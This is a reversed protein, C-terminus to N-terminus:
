DDRGTEEEEAEEAEAENAVRTEEERKARAEEREIAGRRRERVREVLRRVIGIVLTVALVGNGITRAREENARRKAEEVFEEVDDLTVRQPSANTTFNARDSPSTARSASLTFAATNTDTPKGRRAGFPM